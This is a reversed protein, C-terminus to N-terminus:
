SQAPAPLQLWSRQQDPLTLPPPSLVGAEGGMVWVSGVSFLFPTQNVLIRSPKETARHTIEARTEWRRTQPVQPLLAGPNPESRM